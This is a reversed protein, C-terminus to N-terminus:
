GIAKEFCSFPVKQFDMQLKGVEEFKRNKVVDIRQVNSYNVDLRICSYNNEKAFKEAFGLMKESVGKGRFLPHVAMRHVYLIKSGDAKWDVTDYGPSSQENLVLTGICAYNSMVMYMSGEEIDKKLIEASPYATHWHYFGRINLDKVAERILYFVDIFNIKDAKVIEM